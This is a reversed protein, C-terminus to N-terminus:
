LSMEEYIIPIKINKWVFSTPDCTDLMGFHIPVALKAHISECFKAADIANMNNGKGNIPLFVVDITQNIQQLLTPNYLTDGTIYYTKDCCTIIFGVSHPDSHIAQVTTITVDKHTWVVGPSVLVFDNKSGTIRIKDWVSRPSLIITSTEINVFHAVTEPDYHDIHDHTLLLLDPRINWVSPSVPMQRHIAVSAASDTFYPDILITTQESQFLLGAQGLWTVKM